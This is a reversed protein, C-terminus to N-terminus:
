IPPYMGLKRGVTRFIGTFLRFLFKIPWLLDYRCGLQMYYMSRKYAGARLNRSAATITDRTRVREMDPRANKPVLGLYHEVLRLNEDAVNSFRLPDRTITLSDDHARYCYIVKKLYAYTLNSMAFRMLFDRDGAIRYAVDFNGIRDFVRRHFFWANFVPDGYIIERWLIERTLLKSPRFLSVVNEKNRLFYVAQGAVADIDAKMFLDAINSLAGETYDDDTNLFGIIEGKAVNLGKNLADYMGKDPASVIKLRSYNQLIELTGDTSGGDIIIHEFDPYNQALVSEVAEVIFEARNLCPTIISVFNKQTM